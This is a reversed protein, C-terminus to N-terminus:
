KHGTKEIKDKEALERAEEPTLPDHLTKALVMVAILAGLGYWIQLLAEVNEYTKSTVDAIFIDLNYIGVLALLSSLYIALALLLKRKFIAKQVLKEIIYANTLNPHKAKIKKRIKDIRADNM